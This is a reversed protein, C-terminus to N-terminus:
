SLYFSLPNKIDKSGSRGMIRIKPRKDLVYPEFTDQVKIHDDIDPYSYKARIDEVVSKTDEPNALVFSITNMLMYREPPEIYGETAGYFRLTTPDIDFSCDKFVTERITLKM